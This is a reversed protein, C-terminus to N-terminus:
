LKKMHSPPFIISFAKGNIKKNDVPGFFRGDGSGDRNDGLPLIHNSKVYIGYTKSTINNLTETKFPEYSHLQKEIEKEGEYYDYEKINKLGSLDETIYSPVKASIGLESYGRSRAFARIADYNEKSIARYPSYETKLSAQVDAESKFEVDGYRKIYVNGDKFKVTDGPLGVARKIFMKELPNGEKDKNLNVISLTGLFLLDRFSEIFAGSSKYEPNYFTIVDGRKPTKDSRKPGYSYLETGYARKNVVLRDGGLITPEMSGTPVIFQQCGWMNLLSIVVIAFVFAGLWDLAESKFTKPATKKDFNKKRKKNIASELVYQVKDFIINNKM